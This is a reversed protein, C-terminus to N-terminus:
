HSVHRLVREIERACQVAGVSPMSPPRNRNQISALAADWRLGCFADKTLCHGAGWDGIAAALVPYEAFDERPLYLLPTGNLVGEAYVGYGLKAAVVDVSAIIDQYRFEQKSIIHFNRPSGPLPYLGLFEWEKFKELTKWPMSDMGFTGTYILGLRKEQGAGISQRIKERVSVGLRGVPQVRKRNKFYDMANPPTLELLLDALGYQRRITDIYPKFDPFTKGYERYIDFWTFNTIAISFVHAAAAVEFAFPVIDSVICDIANDRCWQVEKALKLSNAEAIAKYAFVTKEIDVTVGDSQICGCDFGAPAYEFQRTFEDDFFSKPLLTRLVVNIDPPLCNCIACSRIGHGFGHSTIYYAIKM